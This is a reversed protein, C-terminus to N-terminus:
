SVGESLQKISPFNSTLWPRLGAYFAGFLMRFEAENGEFDGSMQCHTTIRNDYTTTVGLRELVDAIAKPPAVDDVTTFRFSVSPGKIRVAGRLKDGMFATRYVSGSSTGIIRDYMSQSKCLPIKGPFLKDALAMAWQEDTMEDFAPMVDPASAHLDGHVLANGYTVSPTKFIEFARQACEEVVAAKNKVHTVGVPVTVTVPGRRLTTRNVGVSVQTMADLNFLSRIKKEIEAFGVDPNPSQTKMNKFHIPM